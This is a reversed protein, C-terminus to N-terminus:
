NYKRALDHAKEPTHGKHVFDIELKEHKAIHLWESKDVADSIFLLGHPALAIAEKIIQKPIVWVPMGEIWDDPSKNQAIKILYQYLDKRDRLFFTPDKKFKSIATKVNM